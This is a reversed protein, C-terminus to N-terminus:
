LFSVININIINIQKASCSSCTRAYFKCGYVPLLDGFNDNADVMVFVSNGAVHCVMGVSEMNGLVHTSQIQRGDDM